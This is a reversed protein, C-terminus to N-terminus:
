ILKIKNRIDIYSKETEAWPIPFYLLDIASKVNGKNLKKFAEAFKVINAYNPQKDNSLINIVSNKALGFKPENYLDPMSISYSDCIWKVNCRAVKSRDFSFVMDSPMLQKPTWINAGSNKLVLAISNIADLSPNKFGNAWNRWAIATFGTQQLLWERDKNITVLYAEVIQIFTKNSM